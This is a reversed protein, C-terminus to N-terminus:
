VCVCVDPTRCVLATEPPINASPSHHLVEEGGGGGGGESCSGPQAPLPTCPEFVKLDTPRTGEKPAQQPVESTGTKADEDRRTQQLRRTFDPLSNLLM